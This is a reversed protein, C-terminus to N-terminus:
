SVLDAVPGEAPLEIPGAWEGVHSFEAFDQSEARMVTFVRVTADEPRGIWAVWVCQPVREPHRFWYWGPGTPRRTSWEM